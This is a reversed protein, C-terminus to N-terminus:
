VAEAMYGDFFASQSGASSDDAGLLFVSGSLNIGTDHDQAPYSTTSFSTEQVGNIYLKVRNTDTAQTTDVACVIHYWATPDRLLRNTYFVDTGVMGCQLNGTTGFRIRFHTNTNYTSTSCESFICQNDIMHGRKVWASFTWTRRNGTSATTKHMYPSDAFNWRCSNDVNFGTPIQSAVNGSPITLLTM